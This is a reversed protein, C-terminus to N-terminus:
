AAQRQLQLELRALTELTGRPCLWGECSPCRYMWIQLDALRWAALRAGCAPCPLARRQNPAASTADLALRAFATAGRAAVDANSRWALGCRRCAGAADLATGDFPCTLSGAM